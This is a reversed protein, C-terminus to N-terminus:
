YYKNGHVGLMKVSFKYCVFYMELNVFFQCLGLASPSDEDQVQGLPPKSQYIPTIRIKRKQQGKQPNRITSKPFTSCARQGKSHNHQLGSQGKHPSHPGSNTNWKILNVKNFSLHAEMKPYSKGSWERKSGNGSMSANERNKKIMTNRLNVKVQISNKLNVKDCVVDFIEKEADSAM